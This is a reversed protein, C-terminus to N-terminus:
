TSVAAPLRSLSIFSSVGWCHQRDGQHVRSAASPLTSSDYVWIMKYHNGNHLQNLLEVTFKGRMLWPLINVKPGPMMETYVGMHTSTNGVMLRMKYGSMNSLVSFGTVTGTKNNGKNRAVGTVM